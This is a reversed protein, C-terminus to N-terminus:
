PTPADAWVRRLMQRDEYTMADFCSTCCPKAMFSKARTEAKARSQERVEDRSRITGDTKKNFPNVTCDGVFTKTRKSRGCTSCTFVVKRTVKMVEFDVRMEAGM